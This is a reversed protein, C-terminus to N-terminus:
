SNFNGSNVKFIETRQSLAEWYTNLQSKPGTPSSIRPSPAFSPGKTQFSSKGCARSWSISQTKLNVTYPANTFQDRHSRRSQSYCNIPDYANSPVFGLFRRTFRTQISQQGPPIDRLWSYLDHLVMYQPGRILTVSFSSSKIRLKGKWTAMM